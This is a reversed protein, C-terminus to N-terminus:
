AGNDELIVSEYYDIAALNMAKRLRVTMPIGKMVGDMDILCADDDYWKYKYKKIFERERDLDKKTPIYRRMVIRIFFEKCQVLIKTLYEMNLSNLTKTILLELVACKM